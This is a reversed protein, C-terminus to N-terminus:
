KCLVASYKHLIESSHFHINGICDCIRSISEKSTKSGLPLTLIKEQFSETNPLPTYTGFQEQQHPLPIFYRRALIKEFRLAWCLVQANLGFLKPCIAIILNQFNSRPTNEPSLIEIGPIEHLCHMYHRRLEYNNQIHSELNELSLLGIAAQFESMRGNLTRNVSIKKRSGCSSRINRAKEALDNDNTAICGGETCSLIKTAHMSFVELDGNRGLPNEGYFTGMGQCSDWLVKLSKEKAWESIQQIPAAGGWLNVGLVASVSPSYVKSLEQVDIHCSDSATDCFIIEKKCRKISLPTAAFTFSPLIISGTLELAEIGIMTATTGNTTCIVNKVKLYDALSDELQKVLPGHNTYYSRSFIGEMKNQYDNFSPFYLQGVPIFDHFEEVGGLVAPLKKLM